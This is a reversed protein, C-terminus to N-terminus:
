TRPLPYTLPSFHTNILATSAAILYAELATADTDTVTNTDTDTDTDTDIGTDGGRWRRAKPRQIEALPISDTPAKGKPVTLPLYVRLSEGLSMSSMGPQVPAKQEGHLGRASRHQPDGKGRRLAKGGHSPSRLLPTRKKDLPGWIPVLGKAALKGEAM